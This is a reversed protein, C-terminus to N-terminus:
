WWAMAAERLATTMAIRNMWPVRINGAKGVGVAIVPTADLVEDTLSAEHLKLMWTRFMERGSGDLANHGLHGSTEVDVAFSNEGLRLKRRGFPYLSNASPLIVTLRPM